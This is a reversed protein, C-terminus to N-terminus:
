TSPIDQDEEIAQMQFAKRRRMSSCQTFVIRRFWGPFASPDRLQGLQLYATIFAEQAADQALAAEGLLALSYGYAMDQFREVIQCFAEQREAWDSDAAQALRVLSELSQM